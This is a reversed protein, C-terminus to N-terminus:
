KEITFVGALIQAPDGKSMDEISFAYTGPQMKPQPEWCNVLVAAPVPFNFLRGLNRLSSLNKSDTLLLSIKM